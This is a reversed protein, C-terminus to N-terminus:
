QRPARYINYRSRRPAQSRSQVRKQSVKAHINKASRYYKKYRPQSM